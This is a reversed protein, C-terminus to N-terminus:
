STPEDWDVVLQPVYATNREGQWVTKREIFIRHQAPRDETAPIFDREVRNPDFTAEFSHYVREGNVTGTTVITTTIMQHEKTPTSM